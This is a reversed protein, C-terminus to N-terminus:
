TKVGDSLDYIEHIQKKEKKKKSIFSPSHHLNRILPITNLFNKFRIENKMRPIEAHILIDVNNGFEEEELAHQDFNRDCSLKILGQLPYAACPLILNIM